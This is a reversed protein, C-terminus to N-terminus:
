ADGPDRDYLTPRPEPVPTNGRIFAEAERISDFARASDAQGAHTLVVKYPSRAGPTRVIRGRLANSQPGEDVAIPLSIRARAEEAASRFATFHKGPLIPPSPRFSM